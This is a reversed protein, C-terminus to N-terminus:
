LQLALDPQQSDVLIGSSQRAPSGPSQFGINLDPRLVDTKQKQQVHPVLGRWPLQGHLQQLDTPGLQPFIMFGKNQFQPDVDATRVTQQLFQPISRDNNSQLSVSMSANENARSAPISAERSPNYLSGAGIQMSTDVWKREAAGVNIWPTAVTPPVNSNNMRMPTVSSADSTTKQDHLQNPMKKAFMRMLSLNDVSGQEHGRSTFHTVAGAQRNFGFDLQSTSPRDNDPNNADANVDLFRVANIDLSSSGPLSTHHHAQGAVALPYKHPESQTHNRNTSFIEPMKKTSSAPLYEPRCPSNEVYASSMPSSHNVSDQKSIKTDDQSAHSTLSNGRATVAKPQKFPEPHVNNRSTPIPMHCQPSGTSASHKVLVERSISTDPQRFGLGSSNQRPSLMAAMNLNIQATVGGRLGLKEEFTRQSSFNEKTPNSAKSSGEMGPSNQLNRLSLQRSQDGDHTAKFEKKNDWEKLTRNSSDVIPSTQSNRVCLQGNMKSNDQTHKSDEKDSSGKQLYANSVDRCRSHRRTMTQSTTGHSPEQLNHNQIFVVPAPFPEYDGVWGRGFKMGSPLAQEIKKSAIKWATPGLAAAFCALSRAYSYEANHEVAVLKKTESEITTFASDSQPVPQNFANYTARRNEELIVPKRGLKSPTSKASIDELKESKVEDLFSNGEIVGNVDAAQTTHMDEPSALVAGASFDFGLPELAIRCTSKEIPKIPAPTSENKQESKHETEISEVDARLKEFKKKALEQISRAQKFYITHPANYQMANTCILFVDSELQELNSYASRNLNRRVTGFDMPHEIVDYYDPLEEPDVPEAYVGYIDKKQLKDLILELTKRDPLPTRPQTKLLTGSVSGTRETRKPTLDQRGEKEDESGVVDSRADADGGDSEAVYDDDDDDIRRKKSRRRRRDRGDTGRGEEESEESSPSSRRRRSTQDLKLVLKLKKERRWEIEEESEEEESEEELRRRGGSRRRRGSSRRSSSTRNGSASRAPRGKRKKRPRGKRREAVAVAPSEALRGM